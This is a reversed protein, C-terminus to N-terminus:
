HGNGDEDDEGATLNDQGEFHTKLLHNLLKHSADEVLDLVTEFGDPGEYYPDPVEDPGGESFELFLRLKHRQAAPARRDLDGLNARDMALIYDFDVFDSDALQRARQSDLDYGRARAARRSRADAQEGIHYNGTGCSDVTIRDSLGRDAVMQELVGHATPSRCINGLCVMLVRLPRSQRKVLSM